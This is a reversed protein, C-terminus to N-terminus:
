DCASLMMGEWDKYEVSGLGPMAGFLSANGETIGAEQGGGGGQEEWLGSLLVSGRLTLLRQPLM